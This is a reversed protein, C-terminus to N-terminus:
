VSLLKECDIFLIVGENIKTISKIYKNGDTDKYVTMQEENVKVVDNVADVVLGVSMDNYDLIIISTKLTYEARELGFKKRVNVVPVPKGRLNIVGELFDPANPVKTMPQVSIIEVVYKIDIAFMDENLPFTLYRDKLASQEEVGNDIYAM